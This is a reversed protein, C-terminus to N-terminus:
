SEEYKATLACLRVAGTNDTSSVAKFKFHTGNGVFPISQKDFTADKKNDPSTPDGTVAVDVLTGAYPDCGMSITWKGVISADVEHFAKLKTPKDHDLWPLEITVVTSDVQTKSTGGYSYMAAAARAFVQGAHVLFKQPAFTDGATDTPLYQTWAMIKSSPYYSFVFIVGDLYLWYRSTVPDIVSCAAAKEAETLTALTAQVLSDVPSGLDEVFANLTTQRARLSRIGSDSLFFVELEGLSQVSLPAVTGYNVLTQNLAFVGPDADTTWIQVSYRGFVALRGQYDAFAKASDNSGYQSAYSIFGAGTDHDEWSTVDGIASYNFQMGAAAYARDKHVFLLTMARGAINGKGIVFETSALVFTVSWTDGAAWTGGLLFETVREKSSTQKYNNNFTKNGNATADDSIVKLTGQNYTTLAVDDSYPIPANVTVVAALSTATYGTLATYTNIAAAIAAATVDNSTAWTLAPFLNVLPDTEGANKPGFVSYADGSAGAVTFTAWSSAGSTGPFEAYGNPYVLTGTDYAALVGSSSSKTVATSFVVTDPSYVYLFSQNAVTSYQVFNAAATSTYAWEDRATIEATLRAKINAILAAQSAWGGFVLGDSSDRVIAGAYFLFVNNDSFRALVLAVGKYCSSTLVATMAHYSANYTAGDTVAPHKLQQYTVGAPVDTALAPTIGSLFANHSGFTVLGAETSELGFTGVPLTTKVFAYRREIEGGQNIHGNQVTQLTGLQSSLVERRTDLGYKFNRILIEPM